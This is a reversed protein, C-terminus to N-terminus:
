WSSKETVKGQQIEREFAETWDKATSLMDDVSAKFQSDKALKFHVKELNLLLRKFLSKGHKLVRLDTDDPIDSLSDYDELIETLEMEDKEIERLSRALSNVERFADSGKVNKM